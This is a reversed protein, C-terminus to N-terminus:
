LPQMPDFGQNKTTELCALMESTQTFGCGGDPQRECTADVYCAYEAKYECTTMRDEQASDTCLQGSCGTKVCGGNSAGKSGDQGPVISTNLDQPLLKSQDDEDLPQTFTEGSKTVCVAPFSERLLSGPLALCEEYNTPLKATRKSFFYSLSSLILVFVLFSGLAKLFYPSLQSHKTLQYGAPNNPNHLQEPAIPDNM